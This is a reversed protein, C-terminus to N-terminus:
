VTSSGRGAWAWTIMPLASIGPPLMHGSKAPGHLQFHTMITAGKTYMKGYSIWIAITKKPENIGECWNIITAKSCQFDKALKYRTIKNEKILTNLRIAFIDM